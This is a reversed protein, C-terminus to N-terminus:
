KLCKENYIMSDIFFTEEVISNIESVINGIEDVHNLLYGKIDEYNRM